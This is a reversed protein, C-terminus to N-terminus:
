LATIKAEGIVRVLTARRGIKRMNATSPARFFAALLVVAM